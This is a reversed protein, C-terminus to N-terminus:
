ERRSYAIGKIALNNSETAGSTFVLEKPKCHLYIAMTARANKVVMGAKEGFYHQISSPNAFIGDATLYQMMCEAVEPAVPTTAAYDLYIPKNLTLRSNISIPTHQLSLKIERAKLHMKVKTFSKIM